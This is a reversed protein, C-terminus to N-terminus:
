KMVVEIKHSHNKAAFRSDAEAKSYSNSSGSSGSKQALWYQGEKEHFRGLLHATLGDISGTQKLGAAKQYDKIAAVTESGYVGDAKIPKRGKPYAKVYGNYAAQYWAVASGKDGSKLMPVEVHVDLTGKFTVGQDLEAPTAIVEFHMADWVTHNDFNWDGDWDGGWKWIRQNTKATRIRYVDEILSLPIDTILGKTTYPNKSPNVDVAIGWAHPSWVTGNTIRRLNYAGASNVDYGHAVFVANLMELAPVIKPHVWSTPNTRMGTWKYAVPKVKRPDGWYQLRWANYGRTAM